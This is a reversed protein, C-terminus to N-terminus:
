VARGSICLKRILRCANRRTGGSPPSRTTANVNCCIECQILLRRLLYDICVRGNDVLNESWLGFSYLLWTECWWRDRSYIADDVVILRGLKHLKNNPNLSIKLLCKAITCLSESLVKLLPCSVALLTYVM